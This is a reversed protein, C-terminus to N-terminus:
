AQPPRFGLLDRRSRNFEFMIKGFPDTHVAPMDNKICFDPGQCFMRFLILLHLGVHLFYVFNWFSM